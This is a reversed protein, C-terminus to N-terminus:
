ISPVSPTSDRVAPNVKVKAAFTRERAQRQEHDGGGM